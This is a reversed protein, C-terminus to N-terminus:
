VGMRQADAVGNRVAFMALTSCSPNPRRVTECGLREEDAAAHVVLDGEQIPAICRDWRSRPSSAVWWPPVQGV